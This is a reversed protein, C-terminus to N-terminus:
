SRVADVLGETHEPLAGERRLMEQTVSVVGVRGREYLQLGELVKGMLRIQVAPKTEYINQAIYRCDAGREVLDAAVRFTASGTNSYQFSGTDTLIATYLNTAIDGTIAIKMHQLLRHIMEGTSSARSDTLLIKSFTGVSVHHDINVIKQISGVRGQQDGVRSIDSCDLVFVADFGDVSDLSHVIAEMGPLFEYVAPAMDQNYVVAEKGMDRLVHYLALESGLADGDPRVHSTILFTTGAQIVEAIEDFM